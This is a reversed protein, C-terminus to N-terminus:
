YIVSNTKIGMFAKKRLKLIPRLESIILDDLM